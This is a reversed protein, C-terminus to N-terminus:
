ENARGWAAVIKGDQVAAACDFTGLGSNGSYPAEVTMLEVPFASCDMSASCGGFTVGQAQAACCRAEAPGQFVTPVFATEFIQRQGGQLELTKMPLGAVATGPQISRCWDSPGCATLTVALCTLLPRM